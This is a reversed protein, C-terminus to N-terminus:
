SAKPKLYTFSNSERKKWKCAVYAIKTKNYAIIDLEDNTNNWWSGIKLPEFGIYKVQNSQIMELIHDKYAHQVIRSSFDRRILNIIPYDNGKKLDSYNPDVYCYM